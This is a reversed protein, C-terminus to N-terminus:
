KPSRAQRRLQSLTGVTYYSDPVFLTYNDNMDVTNVQDCFVRLVLQNSFSVELDLAPKFLSISNIVCGVLRKLGKQMEGGKSNDNWAGCVVEDNSDIRWVCEIFLSFEAYYKQQDANQRSGKTPKKGPIKNGIDISLVSGTGPGAVYGWCKQGVLQNLQDEFESISPNRRKAM